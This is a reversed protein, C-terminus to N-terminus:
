SLFNRCISQVGRYVILLPIIEVSCLYLIFYILSFLNHYFIRFGKCIFVMRAVIYLGASLILLGEAASPYFLSVLTPVLLAFGLLTQTSNFGQLWQAALLRSTFAYGIIRYTALQALYYAGAGVATLAATAALGGSTFTAGQGLLWSVILLAECVCVQVVLAVMIRTENVTHEDFLNTRVRISWLNHVLTRFFRGYHRATFIVLLLMSIVMCLVGSNYGPLEPRETAALGTTYWVTEENLGTIWLEIPADDPHSHQQFPM